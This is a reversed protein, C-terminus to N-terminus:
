SRFSGTPPEAFDSGGSAAYLIANAQAQWPALPQNTRVRAMKLNRLMLQAIQTLSSSQNHTIRGNAFEVMIQVLVHNISAATLKRYRGFIDAATVKPRLDLDRLKQSSHRICYHSRPETCQRGDATTFHCRSRSDKRAYHKPKRQSM